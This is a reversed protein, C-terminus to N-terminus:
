EEKISLLACILDALVDDFPNETKRAKDRLTVAFGKASTLIAPTVANLLMLVVTKWM